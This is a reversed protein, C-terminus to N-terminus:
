IYKVGVAVGASFIAKSRYRSPEFDKGHFKIFGVKSYKSGKAAEALRPVETQAANGHQYDLVAFDEGMIVAVQKAIFKALITESLYESITQTILYLKTANPDFTQTVSGGFKSTKSQTQIVLLDYCLTQADCYAALCHDSRTKASYQNLRMTFSPLRM